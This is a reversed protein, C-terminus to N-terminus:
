VMYDTARDYIVDALTQTGLSSIASYIIHAPTASSIVATSITYISSNILKNFNPNYEFQDSLMETGITSIALISSEIGNKNIDGFKDVSVSLGFQTIGTLLGKSITKFVKNMNINTDEGDIDSVNEIPNDSSLRMNSPVSNTRYRKNSNKM